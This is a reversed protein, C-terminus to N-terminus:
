RKTEDRDSDPVGFFRTIRAGQRLWPTNGDHADLFAQEPSGYRKLWENLLHSVYQYGHAGVAYPELQEPISSRYSVPPLPKAGKLAVETVYRRRGYGSSFGNIEEWVWFTKKGYAVVELGRETLHLHNDRRSFGRATKFVGFYAFLLTPPVFILGVTRDTPLAQNFTLIMLWASMGTIGLMFAFVFARSILSGLSLYLTLEPFGPSRELNMTFFEDNFWGLIGARKVFDTYKIGIPV